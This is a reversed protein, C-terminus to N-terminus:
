TSLHDRIAKVFAPGTRCCGGILQAGAAQWCKFEASLKQMAVEQNANNALLEDPREGKWTNTTAEWIEGSNPYCVMPLQTLPRINRLAEATSAMPICNIGFAVVQATHANVVALVESWSTGDSLHETDKMTCGLWAVANPFEDSLLDLLAVIELQSPITELALVDVGADIMAEIRPRHFDKFGKSTRIYDGRYESGDALYAGYPGVSGAVLLRRSAPVGQDYAKQRATQAAEVSRVLLAKGDAESMGFHKTLGDTAAQYSATIAVNAGAIYYDYHVKEIAETDEMLVKASWLDHKLDHGREELETALAGDLVLTGENQLLEVFKGKTLMKYIPKWLPINNCQCIRYFSSERFGVERYRDWVKGLYRLCVATLVM